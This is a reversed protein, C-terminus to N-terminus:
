SSQARYGMAEEVLGVIMGAVEEASKDGTDILLADDCKVLKASERQMDRRDREQIKQKTELFDARFGRSLEDHVKRRARVDICADLYVKVAADPLVVSGIDRGDMVVSQEGAYRRFLSTLKERVGAYQAVVSTAAGVDPRRIKDTVDVGNAFVRQACDAELKTVRAKEVVNTEDAIDIGAELVSLALARYLNGTNVYRFGLRDAALRGSTSKGVGAPGDIAVAVLKTLEKFESFEMEGTM